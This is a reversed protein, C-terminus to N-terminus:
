AIDQKAEDGTASDSAGDEGALADTSGDEFTVADTAGEDGRASDTATGDADALSDTQEDECAAADTAVDCTADEWGEEGAANDPVGDGLPDIGAVGQAGGCGEVGGEEREDDTSKDEEDDSEEGRAEEALPLNELWVLKSRQLLMRRLVIEGLAQPSAPWALEPFVSPLPRAPCREHIPYGVLKFCPKNAEFAECGALNALAVRPLDTLVWECLASSTKSVGLVNQPMAVQGLSLLLRKGLVVARLWADIPSM